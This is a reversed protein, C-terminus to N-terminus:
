HFNGSNTGGFPQPQHVAAQQQELRARAAPTLQGYEEATEILGRDEARHRNPAIAAAPLPKNWDEAKWRQDGLFTSPDPRYKLEPTQRKFDDLGNLIALRDALKLANWRKESRDKSGRKKGYAEWFVEFPAPDIKEVPAPVSAATAAPTLEESSSSSPTPIQKAEAETKSPNQNLLGPNGGKKGAETRIQRIHEDRLMRRCVIAGDGERRSAVGYTLLKSLIQNSTQNDLRLRLAIVEAPMPLGNLLLVGREDGDHMMLLLEFWAGREMLNLAQVGSDKHWDGPYFQLAPLKQAAM